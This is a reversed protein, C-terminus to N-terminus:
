ASSSGSEDLQGTSRAQGSLLVPKVWGWWGGEPPCPSPHGSLSLFSSSHGQRCSASITRLGLSPCHSGFSWAQLQSPSEAGGEGHPMRTHARAHIHVSSKTCPQGNAAPRTSDGSPTQTDHLHFCIMSALLTYTVFHYWMLRHPCLAPQTHIHTHTRVCTLLTGAYPHLMKCQDSIYIRPESRQVAVWYSHLRLCKARWGTYPTQTGVSTQILTHTHTQPAICGRRPPRGSVWGM